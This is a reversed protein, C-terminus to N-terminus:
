KAVGIKKEYSRMVGLGLMGMLVTSLEGMDFAPLAVPHNFASFLFALLPQLVFHYAYAIGCVWMIFPRAGSVFLSSSAAEIKNVEIQGKMLDTDAALQALEGKQQMEMLAQQAKLRDSPDPIVRELIKGGFEFISSIGTFDFGM